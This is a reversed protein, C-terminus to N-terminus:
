VGATQLLLNKQIEEVQGKYYKVLRWHGANYDWTVNYRVLDDKTKVYVPLKTRIDGYNRIAWVCEEDTTWEAYVINGNEDAYGQYPKLDDPVEYAAQAKEEVTEEEPAPTEKMINQGASPAEEEAAPATSEASDAPETPATGNEEAYHFGHPDVQITMYNYHNEEDFFFAYTRDLRIGKANTRDTPIYLVIKHDEPWTFYKGLMPTKENPHTKEGGFEYDRLYEELFSEETTGAGDMRFGGGLFMNEKALGGPFIKTVACESAPLEHDTFNHYEM